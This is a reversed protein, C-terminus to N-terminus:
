QKSVIHELNNATLNKQGLVRIHLFNKKSWINSNKRAFNRSHVTNYTLYYNWIIPRNRLRCSYEQRWKLFPILSPLPADRSVAPLTICIYHRSLVPPPAGLIMGGSLFGSSQVQTSLTITWATKVSAWFILLCHLIINLLIVFVREFTTM